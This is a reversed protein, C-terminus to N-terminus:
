DICSRLKEIMDNRMQYKDGLFDTELWIDVCKIAENKDIFDAALCLVNSNNHLRSMEAKKANDCLAARIDPFRNALISMGIGSGCILIGRDANNKLLENIVRFGYEPFHCSEDSHSGYDHIVMGKDILHATIVKKLKWGRHDNAIAINM